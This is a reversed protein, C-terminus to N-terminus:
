YNEFLHTPFGDPGSAKTPAMQFLITKAESEYYPKSLKANVDNTVQCSIHSMVQETGSVGVLTYLQEYFKITM